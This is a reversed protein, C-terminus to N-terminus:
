AGMAHVGGDVHVVEGTTRPFWDSLLAVVAKAASDYDKTDWGLPAREAWVENFAESGPIAKKALTDLPGAAVLNSRIGEPGLYRALYRSVSQLTSKAVGMWGYVPWSVSNDFDLGVVSANNSLLPKCAMTLSAFSYASVQLAQAVDEWGTTLFDEAFSTEPNAYAISHVVGDLHDVHERLRDPLSALHEKDTVDLEVLPPVPDLKKIVRGTLSMARGFNSVVVTAGQESAIRAVSYAISTNMTLGTVLINKGELIGM